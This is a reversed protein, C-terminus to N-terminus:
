DAAEEVLVWGVFSDVFAHDLVIEVLEVLNHIGGFLCIDADEVHALVQQAVEQALLELLGLLAVSNSSSLRLRDIQKGAPDL